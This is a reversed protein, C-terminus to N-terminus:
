AAHFSIYPTYLYKIPFHFRQKVIGDHFFVFRVSSLWSVASVATLYITEQYELCEPLNQTVRFSTSKIESRRNLVSSSVDRNILGLM